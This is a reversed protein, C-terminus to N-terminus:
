YNAIKPGKDDSRRDPVLVSRPFASTSILESFCLGSNDVLIEVVKADPCLARQYCAM